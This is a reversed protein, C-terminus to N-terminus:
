AGGGADVFRCLDLHPSVTSASQSGFPSGLKLCVVSWLDGENTHNDATYSGIDFIHEVGDVLSEESTETSGAEQAQSVRVRIESLVDM